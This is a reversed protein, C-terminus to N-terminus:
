RVRDPPQGRSWEGTDLLRTEIELTLATLAADRGAVSGTFPTAPFLRSWGPRSRAQALTPSVQGATSAIDADITLHDQAAHGRRLLAHILATQRRQLLRLTSDDCHLETRGKMREILRRGHTRGAGYVAGIAAGLVTGTGLSLGALMVDLTLGVVAGAAVASGAKLSFESMAATSFLDLGWKGETIPLGEVAYTDPSFRHLQLLDDVTQQERKRVVHQMTEIAKQAANRDDIPVHQVAGSVDILLEAVLRASARVLTKRQQRCQEILAEITPRFQDLLSRMKEYLRREDEEDYVVTDFEAVAHMAARALQDRWLATQAADDAVFNLVPVVPRACRALIELEDRHKGLVRDRADIVYLAVDSNLVQKLSRAEQTFREAAAPSGLFNKVGEIGEQRQDGRRENLEDLLAISDELGPTDYLELAPQGAIMVSVGSVQRTVAPRDSVEGFSVDRTLTRMLSTKGTNTHGVVAVRLAPLNM